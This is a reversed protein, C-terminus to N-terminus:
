VVAAVELASDAWQNISRGSAAAAITVAAHVEPRIRLMLKGSCPKEPSRGTRACDDLYHDIAAEFREKLGGVSESEFTIRDVVGLVRGVLIEDDPNFDVRAVYGKYKMINMM